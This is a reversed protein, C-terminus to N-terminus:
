PAPPLWYTFPDGMRNVDPFPLILNYYPSQPCFNLVRAIEDPSWGHIEIEHSWELLWGCQFYRFREAEFQTDYLESWGTAGLNAAVRSLDAMILIEVLQVCIDPPHKSRSEQWCRVDGWRAEDRTPFPSPRPTATNRPTPTNSPTPTMTPSPTRTPTPTETPSPTWTPTSSPTSTLTPTFTPTATPQVLGIEVGIQSAQACGALLVASLVVTLITWYSKASYIKRGM